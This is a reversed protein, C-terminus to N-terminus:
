DSLHEDLFKKLDGGVKEASFNDLIFQRGRAGVELAEEYHDIIFRLKESYAKPDCPEVLYGNVGDKVFSPIEGVASFLTPKGSSLYEGVKTPFGGSNRKTPVQSNVLIFAQMLIDPVKSRSARGMLFVQNALHKEQILRDLQEKDAANPTGYIRLVMDPYQRQIMGFADIVLDMNDKSLDLSGMYCLYRTDKPEGSKGSFRDVDTISPLIHTTQPFIAEDFFNRLPNTMLIRFDLMRFLLRYCFVRGPPLKEVGKSRIPCPYEDGIFVLKTKLPKLIPVFFAMFRIADFSFFLYDFKEKKHSRYINLVTKWIAWPRIIFFKEFFGANNSRAVAYHYHLGDVMGDLTDETEANTIKPRFSFIDVRVGQRSLGKSYALIRNTSPGEEPFHYYCLIGVKKTNM